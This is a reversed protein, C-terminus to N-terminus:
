VVRVVAFKLYHTEPVSPLTPHDPAAGRWDLLQVTKGTRRSADDIIALFVDPEIHHSCSSSLLIGGHGLLKFAAVHLDRYGKKASQVNKRSKTFSPPDLVIVQIPDGPSQLDTLKEFVDGQEFTAATLSNLAANERARHIAEDSIDIGLVSSSGASAANLAFGGDNCFCDLVHANRCYRRVLFRNERQDLFFGTKQGKLVDVAYRVGHETIITTAPTGRLVSKKQPLNELLRLPSENREVISTPHYLSELADCILSLRQDMGYSFTQVVVHDNFRDVVLGPLFDSEGHIVRYTESEQYLSKRLTDAHSIRTQFFSFDIEEKTRTLLRVAILSHPNYFGLGLSGGSDTCVEVVDGIAPSGKVDRVENSFVWPHGSLIRREEKKRLIIQKNSQPLSM